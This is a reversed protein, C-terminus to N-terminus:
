ERQPLLARIGNLTLHDVTLHVGLSGSNARVPYKMLAIELAQIQQYQSCALVIRTMLREQTEYHGDKALRDIELILPDYDFVNEMADSQILVLHSDIWLKLDLLHRDPKIAGPGYTGINASIELEKLEICASTTM